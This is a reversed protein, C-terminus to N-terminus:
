EEEANAPPITPRTVKGIRRIHAEVEVDVRLRAFLEGWRPKLQPWQTPFARHVTDGFGFIDAEWKQAQKLSSLVEGEIVKGLAAELRQWAGPQLPDGPCLYDTLDGELQVGLRIQPQRGPWDPRTRADSRRVTVSFHAGSSDPCPVAMMTAKIEGSAWLLGRTEFPDLYGVLRDGKFAASGSAQLGSREAPRPDMESPRPVPILTGSVPATTGSLRLLFEHLDLAGTTGTYRRAAVQRDMAVSPILEVRSAVELLERAERERAVLLWARSRIEPHRAFFDLVPQVGSRALEDGIIILRNHHFFLRRESREELSRLAAAPTLGTASLSWNTQEPSPATGGAAPSRAAITRTILVSVRYQGPSDGKDLALASVIARHELEYRGWCGSSLISLAALLLWSRIRM